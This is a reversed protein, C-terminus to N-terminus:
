ASQKHHDTKPMAPPWESPVAIKGYAKAASESRDTWEGTAQRYERWRFYQPTGVEVVVLAPKDDSRKFREWRREVIYTKLDCVKRHNADCDSLYPRIGQYCDEAHVDSLSLFAAQSASESLMCGHRWAAKVDAFARACTPPNLNQSDTKQLNKYLRPPNATPPQGGGTPRGDAPGREPPDAGEAAAAESTETGEGDEADDDAKGPGADSSVLSLAAKAEEPTLEPGPEDRVQYIIFIRGDPLRTVEAVIWGFCILNRIIRRMGDRGIKFRRCLAPRRVEWDHHKSLLFCLLGLEDAALREDAFLANGITTFNATHKRRIIM